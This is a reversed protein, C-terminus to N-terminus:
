FNEMTWMNGDTTQSMFALHRGDPSAPSDGLAVHDRLKHANGRLDVYLLSADRSASSIVFFGKGDAAWYLTQLPNSWNNVKVVQTGEGRLSFINIPGGPSTIAAYRDGEPSLEGVNMGTDVEFRTLEIGRGKLPDFATIVVQKSGEALEAIVCLKARARACALFSGPTTTFVLHSAGGTIPIRMVEKPAAPDGPRVEHQYLIWNGDPSVRTNLVADPGTLVPEAQDEDLAQKYSNWYGNRNSGFILTKSDATWDGPEDLSESLTFHRPSALRTGGAELDAVYTSSHNTWKRFTLRKGDATVSTADMCFGAWNTLRRPKEITQGNRADIRMAWYNCTNGVAQPETMSYLFRGDPLWLVDQINKTESPALVTVPSGGELDRSLFTDGSEDNRVYIFRRGDPSWLAGAIASKEDTDFVKRAQEGDPRMLWTEREGLRGKNTAFSILSGDPSVSWAMAHDRLKRPAGDQVPVMWISSTPSSWSGQGESAPHANALFSAGDPFWATSLIEWDVRAGKLVDPQPVAHVEGTDVQQIHMGKTDAYALYKGDPSIAGGSVANEASNLTLQRLKLDPVISSPRKVYWLVVGVLFVAIIGGVAAWPPFTEPRPQMDQRLSELDSRMESATQYRAERHKELARDIIEELKPPLKPNLQRAPGPAQTLIAEQLAPGTDGAFARRGTTMEYLVLGFSFLDTRQDLREGRVQEPSMYGATGMAVGTRSLFPDSTAPSMAKRPAEQAGRDAVWDWETDDEARMVAPALKALGFDLIKAQGQSTVFINAPKIDRHIINKKHAADLGNLIQIAIDLLAELELGAKGPGAASISERLTQGELLQMVLFPQGEHEGFEYIPCINPHELASASRAEREFRGLAAPDQASEEPLFKLAVRRGLKLDEASYVLGMGGGGLGGLIRYHSITEGRLPFGFADFQSRVVAQVSDGPNEECSLLAEVERRLEPDNHCAGDLLAPRGEPSCDAARHFLEEIQAWREPTLPAGVRKANRTAALSGGDEFRAM